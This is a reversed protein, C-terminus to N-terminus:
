IHWRPLITALQTSTLTPTLKDNQRTVVLVSCMCVQIHVTSITVVYLSAYKYIYYSYSCVNMCIICVYIGVHMIYICLIYYLICM